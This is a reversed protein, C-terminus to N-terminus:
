ASKSPPQEGSVHPIDPYDRVWVGAEDYHEIDFHEDPNSLLIYLRRMDSTLDNEYLTLFYFRGDNDM